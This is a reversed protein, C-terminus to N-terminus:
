NQTLSEQLASLLREGYTRTTFSLSRALASVSLTGLLDRDDHLRALREAVAEADRVPVIFGDLGDRVVSGANPTCVVPLGCALAEYTVTASGECLSPHVLVDAWRYHEPMRSRPVPGTLEVHQGLMAAAMPSVAVTGVMRFCARERLLKAAQLVYPSGKRLSVAGVALVRLPDGSRRERRVPHEDGVDVGYPVILCHEARAGCRVVGDRAFKSGCVIVSAAEWEAAERACFEDAAADEEPSTEWDLFRSHEEALIQREIARPAITQEMVTALGRRRAEQLIELGASNFAYVGSAGGIGDALVLRCFSKGAWLHTATVESPSASRSRRRAYEIGFANFSRIRQLPVGKPVREALRQLSAPLLPRPALRLLRPWGASACIDTYFRHLVGAKELVRPVAYHMRAGLQAVAIRM